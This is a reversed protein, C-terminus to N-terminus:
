GWLASWHGGGCVIVVFWKQLDINNLNFIYLYHKSIKLKWWSALYQGSNSQHILDEYLQIVIRKNKKLNNKQSKNNKIPCSFPPIRTFLPTSVCFPPRPRPDLWRGSCPALLGWVHPPCEVLQPIHGGRQVVIRNWIDNQRRQCKPCETGTHM